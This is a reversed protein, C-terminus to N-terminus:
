TWTIGAMWDLDEMRVRFDCDESSRGSCAWTDLPFVFHMRGHVPCRPEAAVLGPRRIMGM